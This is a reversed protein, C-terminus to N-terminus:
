GHLVVKPTHMIVPVFLRNEAGWPTPPEIVFGLRRAWRLAQEYRADIRNVLMPYKVRLYEVIRRSAKWFTMPYRDVVDSTLLWPAAGGPLPSVGFMGVLEGDGVFASWAEVSRNISSRVAQEPTMGGSARVEARDQARMTRGLVRAHQKTAPVLVVNLDWTM